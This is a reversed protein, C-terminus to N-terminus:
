ILFPMILGTLSECDCNGKVDNVVIPRDIGHFRMKFGVISTVPKFVKWLDILIEPNLGIAFIDVPETTPIVAEVNPFNGFDSLKEIEILEDRKNKHMVKIVEGETKWYYHTGQCMKKWDEKHILLGQEPIHQIFDTYPDKGENFVDETDAWAAIHANTAYVKTPTVYVHSMVPRLSDNGCAENFAPLKRM